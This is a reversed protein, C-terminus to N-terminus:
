LGKGGLLGEAIRRANAMLTLTLGKAPLTPFTSGDVCYVSKTGRLQGTPTTTLPHDKASAPLTGAYHISAGEGPLVRKMPYAGLEQFIKCLSKERRHQENLEVATRKYNIRLWDNAPNEAPLLHLTKTSGPEDPHFVGIIVFYDQLARLIRLSEKFPLPSEKLLKFLMLSRYSYFQPQLLHRGTGDPDYLGTLQTLSHRRNRTLRGLRWVNLSPYYTYPNSLLPVPTHYQALSRLAIRTTNLTGAALLLKKCTFQVVEGTTSERATIEVSETSGNEQFSQVIVGAKYLVNPHQQLKELTFQPRYVARDPDAWFETDYFSVAKRGETPLSDTLMALRAQGLAFGRDLFSQRRRNYRGLLFEANSDARPPPQLPELPGLLPSLDDSQPGCVGIEKAVANYYPQLAARDLPWSELDDNSFPMSSAGWAVGLGGQALAQMAAFGGSDIPFVTEAQRMLYQRQPTLQAGVRVPGLPVGEFEDGLFFRHQETNKQRLSLWDVEPLPPTTTEANEPTKGLDCILVNRGAQALPLAAHVASAGSGVVLFECDLTSM